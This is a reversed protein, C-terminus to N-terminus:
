FTSPLRSYVEYPHMSVHHPQLNLRKQSIYPQFNVLILELTNSLGPETKLIGPPLYFLEQCRCDRWYRGILVGNLYLNIREFDLDQLRVGWPIVRNEAEPLTFNTKLRVIPSSEFDQLEASDAGSARRSYFDPLISLEKTRDQGDINLVLLGQSTQADDHFGKPHGLGSVFILLENEANNKWCSDPVKVKGPPAPELGHVLIFQQGEGLLHGNLCASWFHRADVEIEDPKAGTLVLRYWASGEYIGNLDFDPGDPHVPNFPFADPQNLEPAENWVEWETLLPVTLMKAPPPTLREIVQGTQSISFVTQSGQALACHGDPLLADPGAMMSGDTNVWFTDVLRQGLIIVSLEGLPVQRLEDPSLQPCEFTIFGEGSEVLRIDAGYQGPAFVPSTHKTHLSVTTLRNGKLVLVHANQYLIETTSFILEFGHQLPVRYPLILLEFPKVEVPFREGVTLAKSDYSLNRLFLWHTEPHSADFRVAYLCESSSLPLPFREARETETFNVSQLFYNLAKSEFLRETNVGAESIPASFDYSTYTEISGIYDWNTGGIAKYHNFITVGQGLLSKTSISIHERGLTEIIKEYKCGKWTGFWGAQLEAAMLPRNQCFPRLNNEVGDLIQFVEPMERWDTEFQTVSYNDFAYLDVLDEYLGAVYLDNHFLPVQIGLQRALQYLARIYDPEMELTAYENEIQMLIVNPSEKIFPLIQTWWERVYGMYEESWEFAGERRNRLPLNRKALLWGPFGGGSYEANIYPGPRAIVYLGLERTIRLLERVDRIGDFDYVGQRPSHYNWCFYLDVTNYGAANLKFLRDRWLEQSPLRFYHMAGSRIFERRGNIILSARDYSIEM